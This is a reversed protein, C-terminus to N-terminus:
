PHFLSAFIIVVNIVAIHWSEYVTVVFAVGREVM